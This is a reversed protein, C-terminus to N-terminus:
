DNCLSNLFSSVPKILAEKELVSFALQLNSLHEQPNLAPFDLLLPRYRHVVACLAMGSKFSAVIDESVAALEGYVLTNRQLWLLLVEVPVERRRKKAQPVVAATASVELTAPNDSNV